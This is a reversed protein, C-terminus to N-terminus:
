KEESHFILGNRAFHSDRRKGLALAFKRAEITADFSFKMGYNTIKEIWYDLPRCNVHHHGGDGPPAATIALVKGNTVTSLFKDIHAEDIHEAVECTWIFDFKEETKFISEALDHQITPIVANKVNYTLGDIATVDINNQVFYQGAYGLGSGVDLMTKIKYKDIVWNWLFPVYSLEDGYVPVQQTYERGLEDQFKWPYYAVGESNGGLHKENEYLPRIVNVSSGQKTTIYASCGDKDFETINSIKPNSEYKIKNM